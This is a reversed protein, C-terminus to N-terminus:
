IIVHSLQQFIEVPSMDNTITVPYGADELIRLSNQIRKVIEAEYLFKVFKDDDESIDHYVSILWEHEIEVRKRAEQVKREPILLKNNSLARYDAAGIKNEFAFGLTYFEHILCSFLYDKDSTQSREWSNPHKRYEIQWYDAATKSIAEEYRFQNDCINFISEFFNLPEQRKFEVIMLSMEAIEKKEEYTFFEPMLNHVFMNYSEVDKIPLHKLLQGIAYLNFFPPIFAIRDTIAYTDSDGCMWKLTSEPDELTIYKKAEM